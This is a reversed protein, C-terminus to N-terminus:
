LVGFALRFYEAIQNGISVSPFHTRHDDGLNFLAGSYAAPHISIRASGTRM